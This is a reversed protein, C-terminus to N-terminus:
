RKDLATISDNNAISKFLELTESDTLAEIAYGLIEAEIENAIKSYDSTYPNMTAFSSALFKNVELAPVSVGASVVNLACRIADLYRNRLQNYYGDENTIWKSSMKHAPESALEHIAKAEEPTTNLAM